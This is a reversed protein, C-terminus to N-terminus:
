AHRLRWGQVWAPRAPVCAAAWPGAGQLMCAQRAVWWRDGARRDGAGLRWAGSPHREHQRGLRRRRRGAARVRPRAAGGGARACCLLNVNCPCPTPLTPHRSRSPAAARRWLQTGPLARGGFGWGRVHDIEAGAPTLYKAVTVFLASGDGLEFVSQIKGKGFTAEAPRPTHSHPTRRRLPTPRPTTRHHPHRPCAPGHSGILRRCPLCVARCLRLGLGAGGGRAAAAAGGLVEARGNDRLAGALIESASASNHNVLVVMPLHTAASSPQRPASPHAPCPTPSHPCTRPPGKWCSARQGAQGAAHHFRRGTGPREGALEESGAGWGCRSCAWWRCPPGRGTRCASCPPPATWGSRLWRWPWTCWAARTTACTWSSGRPATVSRLPPLVPPPLRMLAPRRCPLPSARVDLNCCTAGRRVVGWGQAAAVGVWEWGALCGWDRGGWGRGVKLQYIARSMDDAAHQSFQTLRVYGAPHCCPAAAPHSPPASRACRVARRAAPVAPMCAPPLLPTLMFRAALRCDAPLGEGYVHDDLHM